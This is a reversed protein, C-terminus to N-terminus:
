GRRGRRDIGEQEYYRRKDSYMGLEARKVLDNMDSVPAQSRAVGISVHCSRQETAQRVLGVKGALEREDLDCALVVFEDGGIRYVDDEGFAGKLAASVGKLAEDGDAHGVTENLEHLGNLDAFVCSLSAKCREPYGALEQEYSNRSKVGTLLDVRGLEALQFQAYENRLKVGILYSNIAISVASFICSNIIDDALLSTDDFAVAMLVFFAMHIIICLTISNRRDTFLLPSALVFAPFATAIQGAAFATGLITAYVLLLSIMLYMLPRVVRWDDPRVNRTVVHILLSCGIMAVFLTKSVTLKQSLPSLLLMIALMAIFALSVLLINRHNEESVRQQIQEWQEDPVRKGYQERLKSLIAM